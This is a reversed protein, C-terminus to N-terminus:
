SSKRSPITMYKELLSLLTISCEARKGKGKYLPAIMASRWDKLVIVNEFAMNGLRWIWDVM